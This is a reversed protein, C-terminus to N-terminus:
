CPFFYGEFRSNLYYKTKVKDQEQAFTTKVSFIPLKLQLM